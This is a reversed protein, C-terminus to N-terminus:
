CRHGVLAGFDRQANGFSVERAELGARQLLPDGILRQDIREDMSVHRISLADDEVRNITRVTPLSRRLDGSSQFRAYERATGSAVRADLAEANSCRPSSRGLAM